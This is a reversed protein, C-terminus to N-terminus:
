PSRAPCGAAPVERGRGRRVNAHGRRGAVGAPVAGAAGAGPARVGNLAPAVGSGPAARSAPARRGSACSARSATPTGPPRAALPGLLGDEVGRDLRDALAADVAHAALVHGGPGADALRGQVPAPRALLVQQDGREGRHAARQRLRAALRGALVQDGQEGHDRGVGVVGAVGLLVRQQVARPLAIGRSTARYLSRTISGRRSSTRETSRRPMSVPSSRGSMSTSTAISRSVPATMARPLCSGSGPRGRSRRGRRRRAAARCRPPGPRSRRRSVTTGPRGPWRPRGPRDSTPRRAGGPQGTCRQGAARGADRPLGARRAGRAGRAGPRPQGRRHLRRLGAHDAHHLQLVAADPREGAPRERLVARIRSRRARAFFAAFMLGILLYASLAAYLSQATVQDLRLVRDIIIVVTLLLM